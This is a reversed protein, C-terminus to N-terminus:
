VHDSPEAPPPSDAAARDFDEGLRTVNLSFTKILEARAARREELTAFGCASFHNIMAMAVAQGILDDWAEGDTRPDKWARLYVPALREIWDAAAEHVPGGSGRLQRAVFVMDTYGDGTPVFAVPFQDMGAPGDGRGSM